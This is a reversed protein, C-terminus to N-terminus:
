PFQTADMILQPATGDSVYVGFIGNNKWAFAVSGSSNIGPASDYSHAEFASLTTILGMDQVIKFQYPSAHVTGACAISVIMPLIARRMKVESMERRPYVDLRSPVM